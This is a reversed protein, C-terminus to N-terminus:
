QSQAEWKNVFNEEFLSKSIIHVKNFYLGEFNDRLKGLKLDKGAKGSVINGLTVMSDNIVLIYNLNTRIKSIGKEIIETLILLSDYIKQRALPLTNTSEGSKFEVFFIKGEVACVYLADNSRPKPKGELGWDKIFENKVKDFNVAKLSSQSMYGKGQHTTESIERLPCVKSKLIPYDNVDIM